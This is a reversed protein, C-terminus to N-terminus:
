NRQHYEVGQLAFPQWNIAVSLIHSVPQVNFIMALRQPQHKVVPVGTFDDATIHPFTQRAGQGMMVGVTGLNRVTCDVIEVQEGGEITIGAGRGCEITLGELVLYSAGEIAVLPGELLSVTVTAQGLSAPPWFYLVGSQRDVYWEGPSDLEELLNLAVYLNFNEGSGLGYLHPSAFGITQHVTDIEAVRIKDDAYGHNFFGQFWVDEVGAWRSHRLDTYRFTGPRDTYDGIRPVSGADVVEGMLIAGSNPYRALTMVTDNWFLEM